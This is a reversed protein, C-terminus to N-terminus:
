RRKIILNNVHSNNHKTGRHLDTPVLQVFQATQHWVFGIPARCGWEPHKIGMNVKKYYAKM